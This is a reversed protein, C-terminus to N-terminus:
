LDGAAEEGKGDYSGGQLPEVTEESAQRKEGGRRQSSM